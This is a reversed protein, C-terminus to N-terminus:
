NNQSYNNDQNVQDVLDIGNFPAASNTLQSGLRRGDYGTAWRQVVPEIAQRALLQPIGSTTLCFRWQTCRFKFRKAFAIFRNQVLMNQAQNFITPM